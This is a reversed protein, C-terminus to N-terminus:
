ASSAPVEFWVRKGTRTPQVGWAQALAEVLALGRGDIDEDSAHRPRPQARSGDGVEVRVVTGLYRVIVTMSPDGAHNIVNAALETTLLQVDGDSADDLRWSRLLRRLLERLPGLSAAHSVLRIRAERPPVPARQWLDPQVDGLPYGPLHLEDAPIGTADLVRTLPDESSTEPVRAVFVAADDRLPTASFAQAADLIRDALEDATAGAGAADLLHDALAEDGFLAGHEDHAETIGNTCVVLADGPGLGVRDDIAVADDFWGLPFGVHGRVDIWGARRVVIPRPHGASALTVWAGCKDLELRAFVASCFADDAREALAHNLARLSRSPLFHEAATARVTQRALADVAAAQEGRLSTDGVLLGWDNRDLRFVDYFDSAATDDPPRHRTALEMGPLDLDALDVVLAALQRLTAHETPHLTRPEAGLLEFTGAELGTRRVLPVAARFRAAAPPSGATATADDMTIVAADAGLLRVALAAVRQLARSELAPKVTV